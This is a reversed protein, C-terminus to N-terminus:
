PCIRNSLPWAFPCHVLRSFCATPEHENIAIV